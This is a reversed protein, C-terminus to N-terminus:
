SYFGMTKAGMYFSILLTVPDSAADVGLNDYFEAIGDGEMNGTQPDKYKNFLSEIQKPNAKVSSGSSAGGHGKVLYEEAAANVDRYLLYQLVLIFYIHLNEVWSIHM